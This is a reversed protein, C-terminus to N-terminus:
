LNHCSTDVRLEIKTLRSLEESKVGLHEALFKEAINLRSKLGRLQQEVRFVTLLKATVSM